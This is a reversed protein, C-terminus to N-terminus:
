IDRVCNYFRSTSCTIFFTLNCKRDVYDVWIGRVCSCLIDLFLRHSIIHWMDCNITIIHLQMYANEVEQILYPIYLCNEFVSNFAMWNFSVGRLVALRSCSGTVRSSIFCGMKFPIWVAQCLFYGWGCSDFWSDAM